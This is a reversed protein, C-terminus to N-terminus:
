AVDAAKERSIRLTINARKSTTFPPEKDNIKLDNLVFTFLEWIGRHVSDIKTVLGSLRRGSGDHFTVEHGSKVSLLVDRDIGLHFM